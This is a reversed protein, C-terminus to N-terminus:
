RSPPPEQFVNDPLREPFPNNSTQRSSSASAAQSPAGAVIFENLLPSVVEFVVGSVGLETTGFRGNPLGEVSHGLKLIRAAAGRRFELRITLAPQRLGFDDPFPGTERAFRYARLVSLQRVLDDLKVPNLGEPWDGEEISWGSEAAPNGPVRKLTWVRNTWQFSIRELSVPDFSLIDRDRFEARLPALSAEKLTFVMQEGERRAFRSVGDPGTPSGLELGGNALPGRGRWRVRAQPPALGYRALEAEDAELSVLTDAKLDNLFRFLGDLADLDALADLPRTRRWGIAGAEGKLTITGSASEIEVMELRTVDIPELDRSHFFLLHNPLTNLWSDNIAITTPDDDLRVLSVKALSDVGLVQLHLAPPSTPRGLKAEAIPDPTPTPPSSSVSSEAPDPLTWVRVSIAATAHPDLNTAPPNFRIAELGQLTTLLRAVTDADARGPQPELVRMGQADRVLRFTRNLSPQDVELVAVRRLDLRVLRRDRFDLPDLPTEVLRGPRIRYVEDHGLRRAFWTDRADAVPSGLAVTQPDGTQPVLTVIWEPDDLGYPAFDSVDDAVFGTEDNSPVTWSALDALLSEVMRPDAPFTRPEIVQWANSELRGGVATPNSAPGRRLALRRRGTASDPDARNLEVGIVDLTAIQFLSRERWVSPPDLLIALFRSDVVRIVGDTALYLQGETPETGLELKTVVKRGIRLTVRRAPPALGFEADRSSDGLIIAGSGPLPRLRKLNLLLGEIAAASALLRKPQDMVWVRDGERKLVLTQSAVPDEIEVQDIESLAVEALSPVALDRRIRRQRETLTGSWELYWTAALGAAFLVFLLLTAPRSTM